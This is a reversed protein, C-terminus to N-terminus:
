SKKIKKNENYLLAIVRDLLEQIKWWAKNREIEDLSMEKTPTFEKTM